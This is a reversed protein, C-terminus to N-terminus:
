KLLSGNPVEEDFTALIPRDGATAALVMGDSVFGMLKAPKLNAVLIIKRNLLAAPEYAGAIGAVVQRVEQGIDVKMRILKRSGEIREAELIQGVRMEVRAFEDIGIRPQEQPRGSPAATEPKPTSDDTMATRQEKIDASDPLFPTELM